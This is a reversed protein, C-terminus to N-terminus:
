GGGNQEEDADALQDGRHRVAQTRRQRQEFRQRAHRDGEADFREPHEEREHRRTQPDDVRDIRDAIHAAVSLLVLNHALMGLLSGCAFIVLGLTILPKRGYRDSWRGFPIQLAAQTLGYAGMAIGLLEPSYDPLARAYLALVPLLLFMGLM